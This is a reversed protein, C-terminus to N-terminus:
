NISVRDLNRRAKKLAVLRKLFLIEDQRAGMKKFSKILKQLYDAPIGDIVLKTPYTIRELELELKLLYELEPTVRGKVVYKQTEKSMM